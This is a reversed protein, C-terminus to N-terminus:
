FDIRPQMYGMAITLMTGFDPALRKPAALRWSTRLANEVDRWDIGPVDLRIGFWGHRAPNIGLRALLRYLPRHRCNEIRQFLRRM